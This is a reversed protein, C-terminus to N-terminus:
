HLTTNDKLADKITERIKNKYEGEWWKPQIKFKLSKENVDKLLKIKDKLERTKYPVWIGVEGVYPPSPKNTHTLDDWNGKFRNKIYESHKILEKTPMYRYVVDYGM